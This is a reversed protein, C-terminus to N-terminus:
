LSIQYDKESNVFAPKCASWDGTDKCGHGTYYLKILEANKAIAQRAGEELKNM